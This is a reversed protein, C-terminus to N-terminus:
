GPPTCRWASEASAPSAPRARRRASRAVPAHEAIERYRPDYPLTLGSSVGLVPDLMEAGEWSGTPRSGIVEAAELRDLETDDLGFVGGLIESNHEGIRPEPGSIEVLLEACVGPLQRTMPRTGRGSHEMMTLVGRAWLHEDQIVARADRVPVAAVGAAQLASALEDATRARSASAVLSRRVARNSPEPGAADPDIDLVKTAAHWDDADEIEVAVWRDNGACQFVDRLVGGGDDNGVRPRAAASEPDLVPEPFVALCAELMSIDSARSRGGARDPADREALRQMVAAAAWYGAIADAIATGPLQPPGDEYGHSVAIGAFAEVSPGVAALDTWPGSAGYGSIQSVILDPHDSALTEPDLRMHRLARPSFNTVFVDSEDLLRRLLAMGEANTLDLTIEKKGAYRDFYYFSGNWPDEGREYDAILGLGLGRGPSQISSVRIVEAGLEALIRTATPGAYFLTLDAVRVGALPRIPEGDGIPSTGSRHIPENSTPASVREAPTVLPSRPAGNPGLFCREAIPPLTPIEVADAVYGTPMRVESTREFYQARTMRRLPTSVLADFESRRVARQYETDFGPADGLSPEDIALGLMLMPERTNLTLEVLGDSVEFLDHPYAFPYTLDRAKLLGMWAYLGIAYELNAAVTDEVSLDIRAAPGGARVARLAAHGWIFAALGTLRGFPQGSLRLPPRGPSGCLSIYGGSAQACLEGGSFARRPGQLGYSTISIQAVRSGPSDLQRAADAPLSRGDRILLDAKPLSGALEDDAVRIVDAGTAAFQAGAFETAVGQGCTVVRIPKSSAM